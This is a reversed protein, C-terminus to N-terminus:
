IGRSARSYSESESPHDAEIVDILVDRESHTLRDLFLGFENRLVARVNSSTLDIREVKNGECALLYFVAVHEQMTVVQRGDTKTVQIVYRETTRYEM